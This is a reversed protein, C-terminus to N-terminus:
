LVVCLIKFDYHSKKRPVGKPKPHLGQSGTAREAAAPTPAPSEGPLCQDDSRPRKKDHYGGNSDWLAQLTPFQPDPMGGGVVQAEDWLFTPRILQELQQDDGPAKELPHWICGAPPPEM